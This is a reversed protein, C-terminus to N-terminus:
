IKFTKGLRPLPTCCLEGPVILPPRPPHTVAERDLKEAVWDRFAKVRSRNAYPARRGFIRECAAAFVEKLTFVAGTKLTRRFSTLCYAFVRSRLRRAKGALKRNHPNHGNVSAWSAHQPGDVGFPDNKGNGALRKLSDKKTAFLDFGHLKKLKKIQGPLLPRGKIREAWIVSSAWPLAALDGAYDWPCDEGFVPPETGVEAVWLDPLDMEGCTM